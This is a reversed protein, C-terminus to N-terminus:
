INLYKSINIRLLDESTRRVRAKHGIQWGVVWLIHGEADILLPTKDRQALPVKHKAMWDRLAVFKGKMGLPMWRDDAEPPRLMLPLRLFSRDFLGIHSPFTRWDKPIADKGASTLAVTLDTTQITGSEPVTIMDSLSLMDDHYIQEAIWLTNYEVILFLNAPLSAQRQSEGAAAIYLAQNIQEYSLERMTPRLHFFARRLLRRQLAIPYSIFLLRNFLVKKSDAQAVKEWAEDTQEQLWAYDGALVQATRALLTRLRPQEQALYPIIEHRLRSRFFTTDANTLDERWTQGNERLWHRLTAGEVLLLPRFLSITSTPLSSSALATMGKLGDLGAGRLLHMLVTEAQDDATHAVVIADAQVASAIQEFMSYRARRAVEELNGRETKVQKAVDQQQCVCFLGLERAVQRVFVADQGSMDRLGHDLHAVMLWLGLTERLYALGRLLAISDGGGSVAVVLRSGRGVHQEIENQLHDLWKAGKNM